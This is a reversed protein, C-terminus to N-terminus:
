CEDAAVLEELVVDTVGVAEGLGLMKEHNVM